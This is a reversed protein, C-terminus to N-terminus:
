ALTLTDGVRLTGEGEIAMYAGFMVGGAYGGERHRYSKLTALPERSREGTLHDTCTVACRECHTARLLRLGSGALSGVTDEAYADLGEIVINPRFREMPVPDDLRGNLDALSAVNTVLIPAVDVFRNQITGDILAFEELPIARRFSARLAAVRVGTGIARSILDAVADGQDVVTVPNGYFDITHEAGESTVRHEITGTGQHSISLTSADIRRTAITALKPLRAQNTFRDNQLILLQRDGEVGKPSLSIEEMPTARCSKVPYSFLGVIRCSPM